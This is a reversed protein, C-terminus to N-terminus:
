VLQCKLANNVAVVKDIPLNSLALMGADDSKLAWARNAKRNLDLLSRWKVEKVLPKEM